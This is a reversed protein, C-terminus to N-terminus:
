MILLTSLITPITEPKKGGGVPLYPSSYYEYDESHMYPAEPHEQDHKKVTEYLTRSAAYWWSNARFILDDNKRASAYVSTYQIDEGFLEALIKHYNQSYGQSFYYWWSRYVDEGTPRVFQNSWTVYTIDGGAYIHKFNDNPLLRFTTTQKSFEDESFAKVKISIYGSLSGAPVLAQQVTFDQGAVASNFTTDVIEYTVIRDYDCAPGVLVLNIKFVPEAEKNGILSFSTQNSDFRVLSDAPDFVAVDQETCSGLLAVVATLLILSYRKM